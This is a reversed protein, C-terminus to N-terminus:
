TLCVKVKIKVKSIQVKKKKMKTIRYFPNTKLHTLILGNKKLKYIM